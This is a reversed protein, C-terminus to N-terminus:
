EIRFAYVQRGAARSERLERSYIDAPEIGPECGGLDADRAVYGVWQHPRFAGRGDVTWLFPRSGFGHAHQIGRQRVERVNHPSVQVYVHAIHRSGASSASQARPQQREHAGRQLWACAQYEVGQVESRLKGAGAEDDRRFPLKIPLSGVAFRNAGHHRRRVRV